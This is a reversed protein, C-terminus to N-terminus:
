LLFLNKFFYIYIHQRDAYETRHREAASLLTMMEQASLFLNTLRDNISECVYAFYVRCSTGALAKSTQAFYTVTIAQISAVADEAKM